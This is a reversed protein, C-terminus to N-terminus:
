LVTFIVTIIENTSVEKFVFKRPQWSWRKLFYSFESIFQCVVPVESYEADGVSLLLTAGILPNNFTLRAEYEQREGDSYTIKAKLKNATSQKIELADCFAALSDFKKAKAM